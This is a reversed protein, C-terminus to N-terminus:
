VKRLVSRSSVPRSEFVRIDRGPFMAEGMPMSLRSYDMM